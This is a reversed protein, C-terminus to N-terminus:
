GDCFAAEIRTLVIGPIIVVLIIGVFGIALQWITGASAISALSVLASLLAFSRMQVIAAVEALIRLIIAYVAFTLPLMMAFLAYGGADGTQVFVLWGRVFITLASAGLLAGGINWAAREVRNSLTGQGRARVSPKKFGPLRSIIAALGTLGFWLWALSMAPWALWRLVVAANLVMALALTAGWLIYYRGGLLPLHRGEEAIARLRAIDAFPDASAASDGDNMAM